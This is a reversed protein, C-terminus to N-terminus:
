QGNFELPGNRDLETRQDAIADVAAVVAQRDAGPVPEGLFSLHHFWGEPGIKRYCIQNFEEGHVFVRELSSESARGDQPGSAATKKTVYAHRKAVTTVQLNQRVKLLGGQVCLGQNGFM